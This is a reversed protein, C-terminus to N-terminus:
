DKLKDSMCRITYGSSKYLKAISMITDTFHSTDCQLFLLIITNVKSLYRQSSEVLVNSIRKIESAVEIKVEEKDNSVAEVIKDFNYFNEKNEIGM